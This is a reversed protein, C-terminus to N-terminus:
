YLLVHAVPGALLLIELAIEEPQSFSVVEKGNVDGVQRIGQKTNRLMEYEANLSMWFLM